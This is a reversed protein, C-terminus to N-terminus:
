SKLMGYEKCVEGIVDVYEQATPSHDFTNIVRTTAHEIQKHTPNYKTLLKHVLTVYEMTNTLPDLIQENILRRVSENLFATSYNNIKM